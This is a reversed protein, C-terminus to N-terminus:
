TRGTLEPQVKVRPKKSPRSPSLSASSRTYVWRPLLAATRRPYSPPPSTSHALIKAPCRLELSIRCGYQAGVARYQLWPVGKKLLGSRLWGDPSAVIRDGRTLAQLCPPEMIKRERFWSADTRISPLAPYLYRSVIDFFSINTPSMTTFFPLLTAASAAHRTRAPSDLHESQCTESGLHRQLHCM